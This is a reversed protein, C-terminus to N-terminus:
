TIQLAKVGLEFSSKKAQAPPEGCVLVPVVRTVVVEAEARHTAGSPERWALGVQAARGDEAM